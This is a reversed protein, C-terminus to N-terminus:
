ASHGASRNDPEGGHTERETEVARAELSARLTGSEIRLRAVEQALQVRQEQSEHLWAEARDARVREATLAERLASLAHTLSVAAAAELQGRPMDLQMADSGRAEHSIFVHVRGDVRRVQHGGRAVHRRLTRESVGLYRAAMAFPVWSGTGASLTLEDSVM